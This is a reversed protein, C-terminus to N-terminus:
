LGVPTAATTPTPPPSTLPTPPVVTPEANQAPTAIPSPTSRDILEVPDTIYLLRDARFANTQARGGDITAADGRVANSGAPAWRPVLVSLNASGTSSTTVRVVEIWSSGNFWRIRVLTRAAYGRLSINVPEGWGVMGPTLKIRPFVEFSASGLQLEGRWASVEHMGKTSPPIKFTATGLRTSPSLSMIAVRRGDWRIEVEDSPHDRLLVVTVTSGVHGQSPTVTLESKLAASTHMVCPAFALLILIVALTSPLKTASM